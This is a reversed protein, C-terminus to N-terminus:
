ERIGWPTLFASIRSETKAMKIVQEPPAGIAIKMIDIIDM